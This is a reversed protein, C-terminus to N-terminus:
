LLRGTTNRLNFLLSLKICCMEQKTRVSCNGEYLAVTKWRDPKDDTAFLYFTIGFKKSTRYLLNRRQRQIYQAVNQLRNIIM